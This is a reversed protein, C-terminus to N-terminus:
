VELDDAIEITKEPSTLEAAHAIYVEALEEDSMERPDHALEYVGDRPRNIWGAALLRDIWHQATGTNTGVEAYIHKPRLRGGERRLVDLVDDEGETRPEYRDNLM